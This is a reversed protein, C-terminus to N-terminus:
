TMSGRSRKEGPSAAFVGCRASDRDARGAGRSSSRTLQGATQSQCSGSAPAPGPLRSARPVARPMAQRADVGWRAKQARRCGQLMIRSSGLPIRPSRPHIDQCMRQRARARGPPTASAAPARGHRRHDKSSPRASYRPSARQRSLGRGGPRRACPESRSWRRSHSTRRSRGCRATGAALKQASAAHRRPKARRAPSPRTQADIAPSLGPRKQAAPMRCGPAGRRRAASARGM